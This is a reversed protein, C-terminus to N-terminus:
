ADPLKVVLHGFSEVLAKMCGTGGYPWGDPSFALRGLSSTVQECALLHYEGNKFADIMSGFDWPTQLTPDSARQSPPTALWRRSWEQQEEPTPWWFSSRADDDFFNLWYEDSQWADTEKANRLTDFTTALMLFRDHSCIEFEIFETAM